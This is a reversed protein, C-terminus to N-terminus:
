KAVWSEWDVMKSPVVAASDRVSVVPVSAVAPRSSSISSEAAPRSSSIVGAGESSGASPEAVGQLLAQRSRPGETHERGECRVSSGRPPPPIPLRALKLPQHPCGRPPEFGRRRVMRGAGEAFDESKGAPGRRAGEVRRAVRVPAAAAQGAGGIGRSQETAVPFCDGMTHFPNGARGRAPQVTVAVIGALRRYDNSIRLRGAPLKLQGRVQLNQPQGNM